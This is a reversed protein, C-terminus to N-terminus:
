RGNRGHRHMDDFAVPTSLRHVKVLDGAADALQGKAEISLYTQTPTFLKPLTRRPM